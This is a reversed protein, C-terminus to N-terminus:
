DAPSLSQIFFSIFSDDAETFDAWSGILNVSSSQSTPVFTIGKWSWVMPEVPAHFESNFTELQNSCSNPKFPSLSRSTTIPLSLRFFSLKCKRPSQCVHFCQRSRDTSSPICHQICHPSQSKVWNSTSPSHPHKDYLQCTKHNLMHERSLTPLNNESYITNSNQCLSHEPNTITIIFHNSKALQKIKRVAAHLPVDNLNFFLVASYQFLHCINALCMLIVRRVSYFCYLESSVKVGIYSTQYMSVLIVWWIDQCYVEGSVTVGIYSVQYM